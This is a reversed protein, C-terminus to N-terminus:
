AAIETKTRWSRPGFKLVHGHHLLRDLMATVAAADGLLKGWDEVPRNSTVLTSAREYRRMIIELLDEAATLPLKRMGLDDIILLPLAVV